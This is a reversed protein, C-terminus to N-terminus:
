RNFPCINYQLLHYIKIHRLFKLFVKQLIIKIINILFQFILLLIHDVIYKIVFVM